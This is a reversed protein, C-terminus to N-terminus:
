RVTMVTTKGAVVSQVEDKPQGFVHLQYEGAPLDERHAQGAEDPALHFWTQSNLNLVALTGPQPMTLENSLRSRLRESLEISLGGTPTPSLLGLQMEQGQNLGILVRQRLTAGEGLDSAIIEWEGSPVFPFEFHGDRDFHAQISPLSAAQSDMAMGDTTRVVPSLQISKGELSAPEDFPVQGLLRTGHVKWVFEDQPVPLRLSTRVAPRDAQQPLMLWYEGAVLQSLDAQGNEDLEFAAQAYALLAFEQVMPSRPVLAFSKPMAHGAPLELRLNLAHLEPFRLNVLETGNADLEIPEGIAARKTDFPTSVPSLLPTYSGPILDQAVLMGENRTRGAYLISGDPARFRITRNVIPNNQADLVKFTRAVRPHLVIEQHMPVGDRVVMPEPIFYRQEIGPIQPSLSLTSDPLRWTSVGHADTSFRISLRDMAGRDFLEAIADIEFYPVPQGNTDVVRVTVPTGAQLDVRLEANTEHLVQSSLFASGREHIVTLDFRTGPAVSSLEFPAVGKSTWAKKSSAGWGNGHNWSLSVIADDVPSGAHFVRVRLSLSSEQLAISQFEGPNRLSHRRTQYGHARVLLLERGDGLANQVEFRGTAPDVQVVQVDQPPIDDQGGPPSEESRVLTVRADVVPKGDSGLVEGYVSDGPRIELQPSNEGVVLQTSESWHTATAGGSLRFRFKGPSLAVMRFEGQANTEARFEPKRQGSIGRESKHAGVVIGAIPLGSRDVVRGIVQAAPALRFQLKGPEGAVPILSERHVVYDPHAALLQTERNVPLDVEALGPADTFVQATGPFPKGESDFYATPRLTLSSGLAGVESMLIPAGEIPFGAEDVVRVTLRTRPAADDASSPAAGIRVVQDPQFGTLLGSSSSGAAQAAIAGVPSRHTASELETSPLLVPLALALGTALGLGVKVTSSMLASSASLTPAIPALTDPQQIVLLCPVTWANGHRSRLVKKCNVRAREITKQVARESIGLEKAIETISVEHQFRRLVIVRQQTPLQGIVELLDATAEASEISRDPLPETSYGDSFSEPTRENVRERRIRNKRSESMALNRAIRKMWAHLNRQHRPPKELARTATEQILDEARQEGVLSIAFARLWDLDSLVVEISPHTNSPPTM